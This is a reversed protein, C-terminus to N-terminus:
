YTEMTESDFNLSGSRLEDISAKLLDVIQVLWAEAKARAIAPTTEDRQDFGADFPVETKIKRYDDPMHFTPLGAGTYSTAAIGLTSLASGGLTMSTTAGHVDTSLTVFSGTVDATALIGPVAGVADLADMIAAVVADLTVCNTNLTVTKTGTFSAPCAVTLTQASSAWDHGLTLDASGTVTAPLM